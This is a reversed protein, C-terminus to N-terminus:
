LQILNSRASKTLVELQNGCKRGLHASKPMQLFIEQSVFNELVGISSRLTACMTGDRSM